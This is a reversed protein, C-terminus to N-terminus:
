KKKGIVRFFTPFGFYKKPLNGVGIEYDIDLIYFGYKQYLKKLENFTFFSTFAKNRKLIYKFLITQLIANQGFNFLKKDKFKIGDIIHKIFYGAGDVSIFVKGGKKVVRSFESMAKENDTYMFVGYCFVVDFIENQFPLNEAFSQLISVNQVNYEQLKEKTIEVGLTQPEVGIVEKTTKSFAILWQGNGFGVELVRNYGILGFDKLKGEWYAMGKGYIRKIGAERSKDLKLSQDKEGFFPHLLTIMISPFLDITIFLIRKILPYVQYNRRVIWWSKLSERIGKKSPKKEGFSDNWGKWWKFANHPHMAIQVSEGLKVKKLNKIPYSPFFSWGGPTGLYDSIRHDTNPIWDKHGPKLYSSTYGDHYILGLVEPKLNKYIDWNKKNLANIENHGHYVMGKIPKGILASLKKVDESIGKLADKGSVLQEYYHNTHLGVEFGMDSIQKVIDNNWIDYYREPNTLFYFSANMGKEKLFSALKLSLHLGRDVDIRLIVNVKDQSHKKEIFYDYVCYTQYRNNELEKFLLRYPKILVM